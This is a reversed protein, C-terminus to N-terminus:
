YIKAKVEYWPWIFNSGEAPALEARQEARALKEHYFPCFKLSGNIIGVTSAAGNKVLSVILQHYLPLQGM